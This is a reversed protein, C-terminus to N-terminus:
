NRDIRATQPREFILIYKTWDSTAPPHSEMLIQILRWGAKAEDNAWEAISRASANRQKYEYQM